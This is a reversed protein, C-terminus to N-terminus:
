EHLQHILPRLMFICIPILAGLIYMGTLAATMTLRWTLLAAAPFILLCPVATELLGQLILGLRGVGMSQLIAVETKRARVALFSALVGAAFVLATFLPEVIQLLLENRRSAQEVNRYAEDQMILQVFSPYIGDQTPAFNREALVLWDELLANDALIFSMREANLNITWDYLADFPCWLANEADGTGNIMGIVRFADTVGDMTMTLMPVGDVLEAHALMKVGAVCVKEHTGFVAADWGDYWTVDPVDGLEALEEYCPLTVGTIMGPSGDQLTMAKETRVALDAVYPKMGGEVASYVVGNIVNVDETRGEPTAMVCRIPTSQLLQRTAEARTLISTQVTETLWILVFILLVSRVWVGACRMWRALTLRVLM